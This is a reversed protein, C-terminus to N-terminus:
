KKTFCEAENHYLWKTDHAKFALLLMMYDDDNACIAELEEIGIYPKNEIMKSGIADVLTFLGQLFKGISQKVKEKSLGFKQAIEQHTHNNVHLMVIEYVSDAQLFAFVESAFEFLGLGLLRALQECNASEDAALLLELQEAEINAIDGVTRAKLKHLKNITSKKIGMKALIDINLNILEKNIVISM